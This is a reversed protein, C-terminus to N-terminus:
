QPGVRAKVVSDTELEVSRRMGKAYDVEGPKVTVVFSGIVLADIGTNVFTNYADRPTCVIPEGRVNFSTNIVVPVGTLDRFAQILRYFLRNHEETVTQVRGTGDQHTVAPIVARREERVRPVLLMFPADMGAPMEFYEHAHEKLIAPAFPRFAERFKVKANIVDKMNADRPDALLSRAGLARPGFELRGQFWGVVKKAAILKATRRLLEDEDDVTEYKAGVEDLAAKIEMNTFAPGYLANDMRFTRPQNLVSNYLYFATGLAGGSDGAAPQIFIEEFGSEQLVRWNAVCNLGVGGGLCLNKKGTERHVHTAMKVMIEEVVQQGSRALDRHFDTIEAEPRRAGHGFLTQWKDSITRTTSYTHAFYRLNLRISGDEKVDVIERFRDVLTPNGYPALGMVKWEADNVRFGLYATLASFLLGVSHPFRLDKQIDIRSGRGIGWSTTTWEGVGDATIIAAADFPSVLFASAAHALHHQCYYIDRDIGLRTQIERGIRLRQGLWLPLAKLWPKLTRPWEALITELIRDFKVLPKEYFTVYDVDGIGIGAEQLCYAIAQRPFGNDHKKRTFREEEAAAVLDGDRVLAAAADHYYCSIGLVIM